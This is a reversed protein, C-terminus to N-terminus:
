PEEEGGDLCCSISFLVQETEEERVSSLSGLRVDSVGDIEELAGLLEAVSQKGDACASFLIEGETYSFRELSFSEPLKRELKKLFAPLRTRGSETMKEVEDATKQWHLAEEYVETDPCEAEALLVRKKWELVESAAAFYNLLSPTIVLLSILVATLFFIRCRERKKQRQLKTEEEKSLFRVKSLAAGVNAAYTKEAMAWKRLSVPVGLTEELCLCFRSDAADGLLYVRKVEDGSLLEKSEELMRKVAAPLLKPSCELVRQLILTRQRFVMLFSCEEEMWVFLGTDEKMEEAALAAIASQEPVVATKKIGAARAAAACARVMADPAAAVTFSSRGKESRNRGLALACDELDVPFYDTGNLRIAMRLQEEKMNPLMLDRTLVYRSSLCFVLRRASNKEKSIWHGLLEGLREPEMIWRKEALIDPLEKEEAAIVTNEGGRCQLWVLKIGSDEMRVTVIQEM